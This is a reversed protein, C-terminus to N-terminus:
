LFHVIPSLPITTCVSVYMCVCMCVCVRGDNIMSGRVGRWRGSGGGGRGSETM